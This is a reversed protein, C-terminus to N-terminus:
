GNAVALGEVNTFHALYDELAEIWGEGEYVPYYHERTLQLTYWVEKKAATTATKYCLDSSKYIVGLYIEDAWLNYCEVTIHPRAVWNEIKPEWPTTRALEFYVGCSTFEGPLKM